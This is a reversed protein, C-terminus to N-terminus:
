LNFDKDAIIITGSVKNKELKLSKRKKSPFMTMELNVSRYLTYM